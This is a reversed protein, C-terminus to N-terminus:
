RKVKVIFSRAGNGFSVTYETGDSYIYGGSKENFDISTTGYPYSKVTSGAGTKVVIDGYWYPNKTISLETGTFCTELNADPAPSINIAFRDWVEKQGVLGAAVSFDYKSVAGLDIVEGTVYDYLKISGGSKDSFTLTYNVDIMNTTFGIALGTLSNTVVGECNVSGQKAYILVSKSNALYMMNEADVGSEFASTYSDNEELTLDYYQGSEGSLRIQVYATETSFAVMATLLMVTSLLLKKMNGFKNSQM